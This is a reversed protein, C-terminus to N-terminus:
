VSKQQRKGRWENGDREVWSANLGLICLSWNEEARKWWLAVFGELRIEAMKKGKVREWGKGSMICKVRIYLSKLKGWGKKMVPGCLGGNQWNWFLNRSDKKRKVREWRKGSMNCKVRIHLSKMKEVARWWRAVFGELTDAGIYIEATKKGKVREWGKRSVICKVRLHM